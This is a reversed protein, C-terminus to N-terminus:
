SLILPRPCPKRRPGNAATKRACVRRWRSGANSSLHTSCVLFSDFGLRHRMTAQRHNIGDIQHRRSSRATAAAALGEVLIEGVKSGEVDMKEDDRTQGERAKEERGTGAEVRAMWVGGKEGIGSCIRERGAARRGSEEVGTWGWGYKQWYQQRRTCM